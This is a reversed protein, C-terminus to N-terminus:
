GQTEWYSSPPNLPLSALRAEGILAAVRADQRRGQTPGPGLGM